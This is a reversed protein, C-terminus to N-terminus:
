ESCGDDDENDDGEEDDDEENDKDEEIRNTMKTTQSKAFSFM